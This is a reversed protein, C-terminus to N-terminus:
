RGFVQMVREAERLGSAYAGPVQAFGVDVTAEGAFLLWNAVPERLIARDGLRTALSMYSYSGRAYPDQRWRTFHHSQLESVESGYVAYLRELARALVVTDPNNEFYEASSGAAFAMLIPRGTIKYMDVWVALGGKEPRSLGLVDPETEWFVSDFELYLKDLLASGMRRIADRKRAPLPPDFTITGAKLVGIPVTVIVIDGYFSRGSRTSVRMRRQAYDIRRVEQGLQITLGEALHDTIQRYGDPFAHNGTVQPDLVSGWGEVDDLNPLWEWFAGVPITEADAAFVTEFFATTFFSVFDDSYGRGGPTLHPLTGAARMRTIMDQVPLRPDIVMNWAIADVFRLTLDFRIADDVRVVRGTSEHILANTADSAVTELQLQDILQQLQPHDGQVWAAGNEVSAGGFGTTWIRGGRRDRAELVQVPYGAAALSHAAALGSVGAGIIVVDPKGEHWASAPNPQALACYTAALAAFALTSKALPM